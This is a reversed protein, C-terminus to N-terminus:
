KRMRRFAHTVAPLVVMVAPLYYWPQKSISEQGCWIDTFMIFVHKQNSSVQVFHEYKIFSFMRGPAWRNANSTFYLYITRRGRIYLTSANQPQALKWLVRTRHTLIYLIDNAFRNSCQYNLICVLVLVTERSTL